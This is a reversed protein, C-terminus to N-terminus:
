SWVEPQVDVVRALCRSCWCMWASVVGVVRMCRAAVWWVVCLVVSLVGCWVVCWLALCLAGGPAVCATCCLVVCCVARRGACRVVRCAGRM